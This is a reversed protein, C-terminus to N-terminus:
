GSPNASIHIKDSRTKRSVASGTRSRKALPLLRIPHAEVASTINPIYKEMVARYEALVVDFGESQVRKAYHKGNTGTRAHGMLDARINDNMGDQQFCSSVFSRISHIDSRKGDETVPIPIHADIYKVMHQWARDYFLGGGRKVPNVYLEPFVATHKESKIKACYELFGLRSVEQPIPIHRNRFPTKEGNKDGDEGRTKNDRIWIYPIEADPFIDALELGCIEERCAGTYFWILPAFYATDHFVLKPRGAAQLRHLHGDGGTYIPSAFLCEFHKRQWPMRSDLSSEKNRDRTRGKKFELAVASGSPTAWVTKDLHASVTAMTSMDRNITAPSRGKATQTAAKARIEAKVNEFPRAMAGSQYLKGFRFDGPLLQLGEKFATVDLHNYDGLAKDGTIWAFTELIRRQQSVNGKWVSDAKLASLIDDIVESFRRNDRYKFPSPPQNLEQGLGLQNTAPSEPTHNSAQTHHPDVDGRLGGNIGSALKAWLEKVLVSADDSLPALDAMLATAIDPADTLITQSISQSRRHGARLGRLLQTRAIGISQETIPAGIANLYASVGELDYREQLEHMSELVAAPEIGRKELESEEVASLALGHGPELLLGAAEAGEHAFDEVWASYEQNELYKGVMFRVERELEFRFLAEIEAGTLARGSVLMAAVKDKVEEFRASLRASTRRAMRPCATRLAFSLPKSIVNRFHIRRRYVYRGQIRVVHTIRSMM